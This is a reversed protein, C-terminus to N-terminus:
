RSNKEEIGSQSFRKRLVELVDEMRVDKLKLLVMAHYLLDGMESASRSGDEDDLLTRALEEAEERIKSCLLENDHMLKRTWSPKKNQETEFEQKRESIITELSYLTTLALREKNKQSDELIDFVSTYYCTESGTHCAPGDPKGLYIVSDRDCDLFIDLVNIYNSSTGGKTWLSSRSRSYFTAKRSSFTAELAERNAFGQMLVAGTDVNQAIAVVLGKDDWKISDLLNKVKPDVCLVEKPATAAVPPCVKQYRWRTAINRPFSPRCDGGRASPILFYDFISASM